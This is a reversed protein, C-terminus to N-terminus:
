VELKDAANKKRRKEAFRVHWSANRCEQGCFRTVRRLVPIFARGCHQCIYMEKTTVPEGHLRNWIGDILELRADEWSKGAGGFSFREKPLVWELVNHPQRVITSVVPKTSKGKKPLLCAIEDPLEREETIHMFNLRTIILRQLQSKTIM